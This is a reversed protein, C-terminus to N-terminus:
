SHIARNTQTPNRGAHCAYGRQRYAMVENRYEEGSVYGGRKDDVKGNKEQEM